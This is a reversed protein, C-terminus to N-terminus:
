SRALHSSSLGMSIVHELNNTIFLLKKRVLRCMGEIARVQKLLRAQEVFSPCGRRGAGGVLHMWGPAGEVWGMRLVGGSMEHHCKRHCQTASMHSGCRRTGCMLLEIDGFRLGEHIGGDDVRSTFSDLTM